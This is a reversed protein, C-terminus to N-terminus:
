SEAGARVAIMEAAVSVAIEAPTRAGISLGIPAHVADYEAAAFGAELLRDRCLALKKRSGICGIYRAGSRLVQRLVQYDAEPSRTMVVVCDDATVTLHRGLESFPLCLTRAAGPFLAPDAFEPRDDCVVPHFGVRALVPVLEQAVHGGGCVYVWGPREVPVCFLGDETLAAERRLLPALAPLARDAGSLARMETVRPGDLRRLLWAGGGGASLEALRRFVAAADGDGPALTQFHLTVDGGSSGGQVFRYSCRFSRGSKMLRLAQQGAEFEAPGGGVTGDLAGDARVAMMAGPERPVSGAATLITVLVAPRGEELEQALRSFMERM